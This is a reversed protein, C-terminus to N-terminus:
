KGKVSLVKYLENFWKYIKSMHYPKFRDSDYNPAYKEMIEKQVEPTQGDFDFIFTTQDSDAFLWDIVRDIEITGDNTHIAYDGLCMVEEPKVTAYTDFSGYKLCAIFKKGVVKKFEWVGPKNKISYLHKFDITEM